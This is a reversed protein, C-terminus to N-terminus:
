DTWLQIKKLSKKAINTESFEKSIRPIIQVESNAIDSELKEKIRGSLDFIEGATKDTTFGLTIDVIIKKGSKRSKVGHFSDYWDYYESLRRLIKM